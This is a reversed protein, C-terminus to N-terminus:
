LLTGLAFLITLIIYLYINFCFALGLTGWIESWRIEAVPRYYPCNITGPFTTGHDRCCAGNTCWYSIATTLYKCNPGVKRVCAREEPNSM